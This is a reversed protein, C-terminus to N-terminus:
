ETFCSPGMPFAIPVSEFEGLYRFSPYSRIIAAQGPILVLSRGDRRIREAPLEM